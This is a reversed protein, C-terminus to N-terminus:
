SSSGAAVAGSSLACCAEIGRPSPSRSGGGSTLSRSPRKRVEAIGRWDLLAAVQNAEVMAEPEGDGLSLAIHTADFGNLSIDYSKWHGDAFAIVWSHPMFANSAGHYRGPSFVLGHVVRVPIGAARGLAALVLADETCDGARRRWATRASVYGDFDIRPLRARAAAALRAMVADDSKMGRRAQAAKDRFAADDSQIWQSPRTWRRREDDTPVPVSGCGACIDVQWGGGERRVRQEGTEPLHIAVDAPLGFAYRMQGLAARQTMHVGPRYQEHAVIRGRSLLDEKTLLGDDRRWSRASGLLPQRAAVLRGEAYDLWRVSQLRGGRSLTLVFGHDAGTRKALALQVPRFRLLVPDFEAISWSREAVPETLFPTLAEPDGIPLAPLAASVAHREGEGAAQGKLM